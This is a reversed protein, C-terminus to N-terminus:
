RTRACGPRRLRPAGNPRRGLRVAPEQLGLRREAVGPVLLATKLSPKTPNSIDWVQYGNYNGQIAYNGIFALDSNTVGHFHGTSPSNSLLRVNWAAEAAKTAIVRRSQGDIVVSGDHGAHLGVRPDPSPPLMSSSQSSSRRRRAPSSSSGSMCAAFVSCRPRPSRDSHRRSSTIRLAYSFGTLPRVSQFRDLVVIDAVRSGVQDRRANEAHPRDRHDSRRLRGVLLSLRNRGPARRRGGRARGGHTIAGQHHRIMAQLFLRDFEVGRAADLQKLEEDNLMGPMLMDHTMGNMTMQMHTANAPPVELARQKLWNQMLGIEDRQGVVIRECLRQLEPSAGHTPAWGAILVAQAHHPIMGSMFNMDAANPTSTVSGPAAPAPTPAGQPRASGSGAHQQM